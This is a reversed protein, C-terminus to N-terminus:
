RVALDILDPFTALTDIVLASKWLRVGDKMQGGFGVVDKNEFVLEIIKLLGV